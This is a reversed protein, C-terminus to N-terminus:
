QWLTQALEVKSMRSRGSLGRERALKYLEARTPGARYRATKVAIDRPQDSFQRGKATDARKKASTRRYEQDSLEERAQRPLYREGTDASKGGSKTGWDEEQWQQLSNDTAKRGAYRGGAKKYQQVAFQAKRASWQGPQGGKSSDTVERKIKEWLEPDTREATMGM